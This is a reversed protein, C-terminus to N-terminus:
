FAVKQLSGQGRHTVTIDSWNNKRNEILHGRTQKLSIFFFRIQEVGTARKKRMRREKARQKSIPSLHLKSLVLLTERAWDRWLMAAFLGQSFLQGHEVASQLKMWKEMVTGTAEARLYYLPTKKKRLSCVEMRGFEAGCLCSRPTSTGSFLLSLQHNLTPTEPHPISNLGRTGPSVQWRLMKKVTTSLLAKADFGEDHNEDRKKQEARVRQTFNTLFTRCVEPFEHGFQSASFRM